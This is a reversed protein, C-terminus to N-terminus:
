IPVTDIVMFVAVLSCLPYGTEYTQHNIGTSRLMNVYAQRNNLTETKLIEKLVCRKLYNRLNGVDSYQSYNQRLLDLHAKIQMLDM